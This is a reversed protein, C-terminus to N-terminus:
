ECRVCRGFLFARLDCSLMTRAVSMALFYSCHFFNPAIENEVALRFIIDTLHRLAWSCQTGVTYWQFSNGILLGCTCPSYLLTAFERVIYTMHVAILFIACLIFPVRTGFSKDFYIAHLVYSSFPSPVLPSWCIAGLVRRFYFACLM